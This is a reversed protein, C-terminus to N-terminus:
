WIWSQSEENWADALLLRSGTYGVKFYIRYEIYRDLVRCLYKSMEIMSGKPLELWFIRQLDTPLRTLSKVKYIWVKPLEMLGTELAKITEESHDDVVIIAVEPIGARAPLLSIYPTIIRNKLFEEKRRMIYQHYTGLMKAIHRLPTNFNESFIQLIRLDTRTLRMQPESSNGKLIRYTPPRIIDAYTPEEILGRIFLSLARFNINWKRSDVDYFRFSISYGVETVLYADINGYERRLLMVADLMHDKPVILSILAGENEGFIRHVTRLYYSLPSEPFTHVQHPVFVLIQRLGLKEFNIFGATKYVLNREMEKLRRNVTSLSVGLMRALKTDSLEPNQALCELIKIDRHDFVYPM